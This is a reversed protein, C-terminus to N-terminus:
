KACTIVVADKDIKVQPQGITATMDSALGFALAPGHGHAECWSNAVTKGCSVGDVFCDVIGYGEASGIIYTRAEPATQAQVPGRAITALAILGVGLPVVIRRFTHQSVEAIMM